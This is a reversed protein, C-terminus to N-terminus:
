RTTIEGIGDIPQHVGTSSEGQVVFLMKPRYRKVANDIEILSFNDTLTAKVLRKVIAGLLLFIQLKVM